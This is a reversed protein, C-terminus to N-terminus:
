DGHGQGQGYRSRSGAGKSGPHCRRQGRRRLREADGEASARIRIRRAPAVATSVAMAESVPGRFTQRSWSSILGYVRLFSVHVLELFFHTHLSKSILLKSAGLLFSDTFEGFHKAPEDGRGRSRARSKPGTVEPRSVPEARPEARSDPSRSPGCHGRTAAEGRMM